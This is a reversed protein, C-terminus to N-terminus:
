SKIIADFIAGVVRGYVLTEAILGDEGGFDRYIGPKVVELKWCIENLSQEALGDRWYISMANEIIKANWVKRPRGRKRQEKM